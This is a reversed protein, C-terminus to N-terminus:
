GPNLDAEYIPLQNSWNRELAIINQRNKPPSTTARLFNRTTVQKQKQFNRSTQRQVNPQSDNQLGIKPAGFCRSWKWPRTQRDIPKTQLTSFVARSFELTDTQRDIKRTLKWPDMCFLGLFLKNGGFSLIAFENLLTPFSSRWSELSQAEQPNKLLLSRHFVIGRCVLHQLSLRDVSLCSGWDCCPRFDGHIHTDHMYTLIYIYIHIYIYMYICIYKYICIYTYM